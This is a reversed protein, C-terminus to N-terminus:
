SIEKMAKVGSFMLLMGASAIGALLLLDSDSANDLGGVAGFVVLLGVFIRITGRM